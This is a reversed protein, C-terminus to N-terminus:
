QKRTLSLSRSLAVSHALSLSRALSRSLSLSLSLARARSLSLLRALSRDRSLSLPGRAARVQAYRPSFHRRGADGPPLSCLLCEGNEEVPEGPHHARSWEGLGVRRPVPLVRGVNAFGKHGQDCKGHGLGGQCIRGAPEREGSLDRTRDVDAGARGVSAGALSVNAHLLGHDCGEPAGITSTGIHVCEHAVPARRHRSCNGV